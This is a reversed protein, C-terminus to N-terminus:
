VPKYKWSAGFGIKGSTKMGGGGGGGTDEVPGGNRGNIDKGVDGGSIDRGVDGANAVAGEGVSLKKDSGRSVDVGNWNGWWDM